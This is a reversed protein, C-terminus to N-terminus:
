STLGCLKQWKMWVEGKHPSVEHIVSDKLYISFFKRVSFIFHMLVHFAVFAVLIWDYWSPLQAASLQVAFFITVVSIQNLNKSEVKWINVKWMKWMSALLHAANGVFWHAWNFIPRNKDTPGPRFLAMFPQIFCLITTVTGLIAHPNDAASWGRLEVFIVVFGAITLAWTAIM